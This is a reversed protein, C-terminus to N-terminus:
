KSAPTLRKLHSKTRALWAERDFAKEPEPHTLAAEVAERCRPKDLADDPITTKPVERMAYDKAQHSSSYPM